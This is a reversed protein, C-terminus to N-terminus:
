GLSGKGLGGFTTLLATLAVLGVKRRVKEKLSKSWHKWSSDIQFHQETINLWASVKSICCRSFFRDFFLHDRTDPKEGCMLCKDDFCVGFKVLKDRTKLKGQVVISYRSTHWRTDCFGSKLEDKINCIKKWGIGDYKKPKYAWWEKGKLYVSHVWRVWLSDEKAAVKWVYKGLAAKNWRECDRIGM